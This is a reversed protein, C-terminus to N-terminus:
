FLISTALGANPHLSWHPRVPHCAQPPPLLEGSQRGWEWAAMVDQVWQSVAPPSCRRQLGEWMGTNVGARAPPLTRATNIKVASFEVKPYWDNTLHGNGESFVKQICYFFHIKSMVRLAPHITTFRDRCTHARPM